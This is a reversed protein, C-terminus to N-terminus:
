FFVVFDRMFNPTIHTCCVFDDLICSSLFGKVCPVDHHGSIRCSPRNDCSFLAFGVLLHTVVLWLGASHPSGGCFGFIVCFYYFCFSQNTQAVIRSFSQSSLGPALLPQATNFALPLLQPSSQVELGGCLSM